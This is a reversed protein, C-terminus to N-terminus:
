SCKDVVEALSCGHTSVWTTGSVQVSTRDANKRFHIKYTTPNATNEYAHSQLSSEGDWPEPETKAKLDDISFSVNVGNEFRPEPEAKMLWYQRSSGAEDGAESGGEEEEAPKPVEQKKVGVGNTVTKAKPTVRPAKQGRPNAKVPKKAKAEATDAGKRKSAPSSPSTPATTM